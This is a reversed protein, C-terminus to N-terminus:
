HVAAPVRPAHCALHEQLTKAHERAGDDHEEYGDVFVVNLVEDVPGESLGTHPFYARVALFTTLVNLMVSQINRVLCWQEQTNIKGSRQYPLPKLDQPITTQHKSPTTKFSYNIDSKYTCLFSLTLTLINTRSLCQQTQIM